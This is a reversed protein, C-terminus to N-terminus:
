SMNRISESPRTLLRLLINQKSLLNDVWSRLLLPKATRNEIEKNLTPILGRQLDISNGFILQHPSIGIVGHITLNMLRQVMPLYVM